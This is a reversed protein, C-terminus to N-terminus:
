YSSAHKLLASLLCDLWLNTSLPQSWLNYLAASPRIETLACLAKGQTARSFRILTIHEQRGM